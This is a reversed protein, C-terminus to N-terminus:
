EKDCLIMQLIFAFTVGFPGLEVAINCPYDAIHMSRQNTAFGLFFIRATDPTHM